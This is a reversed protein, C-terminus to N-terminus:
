KNEKLEIALYNELLGRYDFGKKNCWDVFDWHTGYLNLKTYEENEEETMSSLPRLYARCKSISYSGSKAVVMDDVIGIAEDEIVIVGSNDYGIKYTVFKVGYPIRASFDKKIAEIEEQKM